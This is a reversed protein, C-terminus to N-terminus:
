KQVTKQTTQCQYFGAMLCGVAFAIAGAIRVKIEHPAGDQYCVSVFVGTFAIITGLKKILKKM